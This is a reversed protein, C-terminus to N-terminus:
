FPRRGESRAGLRESLTQLRDAYAQLRVRNLPTGTTSARHRRLAVSLVPSTAALDSDDPDPGIDPMVLDRTVEPKAGSASVPGPEPSHEPGPEPAGDVGADLPPPAAPTEPGPEPEAAGTVAGEIAAPDPAAPVPTELEAIPDPASEPAAADPELTEPKDPTEAAEARLAEADPADADDAFMAATSDPRTDPETQPEPGDDADTADAPAQSPAQSPAQDFMPDPAEDSTDTDPAADHSFFTVTDPASPADVESIDAGSIDAGITDRGPVPEGDSGTTSPTPAVETRDPPTPAADEFMPTDSSPAPEADPAPRETGQEEAFMPALDEAPSTPGDPRPADTADQLAAPETAPDETDRPETDRPETESPKADSSGAEDTSLGEIAPPEAFMPSADTPTATEALDPEPEEQASLDASPAEGFLPSLTDTDTDPGRPGDDADSAGLDEGLQDGGTPPPADHRTDLSIDPGTAADPFDQATEADDPTVDVLDADQDLPPSMAAVYRVGNERLLKQVGRITLGDEHLLKRIGGLLEMDSPRYYRRGGARKVPKVQAFRSEWFRLVHAPVGLWDAVESITRFAEPSKKDM